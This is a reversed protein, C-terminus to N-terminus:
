NSLTSQSCRFITYNSKFKLIQKPVKILLEKPEPRNIGHSTATHLSFWTIGAAPADEAWMHNSAEVHVVSYFLCQMRCRQRTSVHRTVFCCSSNM